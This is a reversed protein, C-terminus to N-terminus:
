CKSKTKYVMKFFACAFDQGFVEKRKSFSTYLFTLLLKLIELVTFTEFFWIWM